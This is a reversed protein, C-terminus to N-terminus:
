MRPDRGTRAWQMRLEPAMFADGPLDDHSLETVTGDEFGDDNSDFNGDMRTLAERGAALAEDESDARVVATFHHHAVADIVLVLVGVFLAPLVLGELGLPFLWPAGFAVMLATQALRRARVDNYTRPSEGPDGTDAVVNSRWALAFALVIMFVFSSWGAVGDLVYDRAPALFGNDFATFM